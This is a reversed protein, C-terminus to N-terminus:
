YWKKEKKEAENKFCMVLKLAPHDSGQRAMDVRLCTKFEGRGNKTNSVTAALLPPAGSLSGNGRSLRVVTQLNDSALAQGEVQAYALEVHNDATISLQVLREKVAKQKDQGQVRQHPFLHIIPQSLLPVCSCCSVELFVREKLIATGCRPLPFNKPNTVKPHTRSTGDSSSTLAASQFPTVGASAVAAKKRLRQWHDGAGSRSGSENWGLTQLLLEPAADPPGGSFNQVYPPTEPSHVEVSLNHMAAFALIETVGGYGSTRIDDDCPLDAGQYSITGQHHDFYDAIANRM